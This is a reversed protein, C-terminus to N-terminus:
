SALHQKFKELLVKGLEVHELHNNLADKNFSLLVLILFTRAM